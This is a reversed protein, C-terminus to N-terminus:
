FCGRSIGHRFFLGPSLVLPPPGPSSSRPGWRRRWSSGGSLQSASRTWGAPAGRSVLRTTPIARLERGQASARRRSVQTSDEDKAADFTFTRGEPGEYQLNNGSVEVAKRYQGSGSATERENAPRVRVLM